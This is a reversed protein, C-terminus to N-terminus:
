RVTVPIQTSHQITGSTATVTLQYTRPPPQNSTGSGCAAPLMVIVAIVLLLVFLRLNKRNFGAIFLCAMFGLPFVTAYLADTKAFSQPMLSGLLGIANVSLTASNGAAVSSPSISCTPMPAPGSVSCSLAITGAFGGQLPFSLTDSVQEGRKVTLSAAAAQIVFDPPPGNFTAIVIQDSNMTINCSNADTGTCAGSWGAFTSGTGTAASIAVFTGPSYGAWCAAGVDNCNIAGDASVVSGNGTGSKTIALTFKQPIAEGDFISVNNSGSNAVYIKNTSPNIAVAVPAVAAADAVSLVANTAGNIISINNSGCNAVYVRNRTSDVTVTGTNFPDCSTMATPDTITTISNTAGDIVTVGGNGTNAINNVNAVYIKNTLPNIAVAHPAFANPDVINTIGRTKGDLVTISGKDTGNKGVNGLNAIYIKNTVPNVALAIPDAAKPDSISVAINTAGDIETVTTETGAALSDFSSVYIKNTVSNAVIDYPLNTTPIMTITDTSGDIVAVNSSFHNTVYIENTTTNVAAGRPHPLNPQPLELETASNTVGDIITVSGSNNCSNGVLCSKGQNAVYIKNTVQNIAVAVPCIGAPVTTTANTDGDIVTVSGNVGPQSAATTPCNAVYIKNTTQNVAIAQPNTGVVVSTVITQAQGMTPFLILMLVVFHQWTIGNFKCLKRRM